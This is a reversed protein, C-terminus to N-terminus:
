ALNVVVAACGAAPPRCRRSSAWAAMALAPAAWFTMRLDAVGDEERERQIPGESVGRRAPFEYDNAISSAALGTQQADECQAVEWRYTM